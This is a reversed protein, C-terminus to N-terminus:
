ENDTEGITKIYTIFDNGNTKKFMGNPMLEASGANYEMQYITSQLEDLPYQSEAEILGSQPASHGVWHNYVADSCGYWQHSQRFRYDYFIRQMVELTTDLSEKTFEFDDSKMEVFMGVYTDDMYKTRLHGRAEPYSKGGDNFLANQIAREPPLQETNNYFRSFMVKLGVAIDMNKHEKAQNIAWDGFIGNLERPKYTMRKYIYCESNSALTCNSCHDELLSAEDYGRSLTRDCTAPSIGISQRTIENWDKHNGAFSQHLTNLPGTSHVYYVESWSRLLAKAIGLNGYLIQKIIDEHWEGLCLNGLGYNRAQRHLSLDIGVSDDRYIYPHRIGPIVPQQYAFFTINRTWRRLRTNAYAARRGLCYDYLPISLGLLIEGYPQKHLLNMEDEGLEGKLYVRLNVDDLKFIINVYWHRPNTSQWQSTDVDFMTTDGICGDNDFDLVNCEALYPVYPKGIEHSDYWSRNWYPFPTVEVDVDAVNNSLSGYVEDMLVKGQELTDGNVLLQGNTRYVAMMDDLKHLSDRFNRANWDSHEFLKRLNNAGRKRMWQPHEIEVYKKKIKDYTGPKWRAKPTYELNINYKENFQMLKDFYDAINSLKEYDIEPKHLFKLEEQM